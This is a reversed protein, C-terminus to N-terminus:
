QHALTTQCARFPSQLPAPSSATEEGKNDTLRWVAERQFNKKEKKWKKPQKGYKIGVGGAERKGFWVILVGLGDELSNPERRM